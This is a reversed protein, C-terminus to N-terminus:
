TGSTMRWLAVVQYADWLAVGLFTAAGCALTALWLMPLLPLDLADGDTSVFGIEISAATDENVARVATDVAAVRYAVTGVIVALVVAVCIRSSLAVVADLTTCRSRNRREQGRATDIRRGCRLCGLTLELVLLTGEILPSVNLYSELDDSVSALTRMSAVDDYDSLAGMVHCTAERDSSSEASCHYVGRLDMVIHEKPDGDAQWRWWVVIDGAHEPVGARQSAIIMILLPVLYVFAASKAAHLSSGVGHPQEQATTLTTPVDAQILPLRLSEHASARGLSYISMDRCAPCIAPDGLQGDACAACISERSM